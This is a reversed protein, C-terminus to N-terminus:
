LLHFHNTMLCYGHCIVNFRRMTLGLVSLFTNRDIDDLFISAQANGRSTVHYIAGPFEIRLPRAM